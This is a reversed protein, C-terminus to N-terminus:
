KTNVLYAEAFVSGGSIVDEPDSAIVRLKVFFSNVMATTKKELTWKRGGVM